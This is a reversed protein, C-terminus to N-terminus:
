AKEDLHERDHLQKSAQEYLGKFSPKIERRIVDSSHNIIANEIEAGSIQLNALQKLEAPSLRLPHEEPMKQKWLKVREEYEPFGVEIVALCRRFVAPDLAHVRNTALICLGKYEEIQVLLENIVELTWQADPGLKDRNILIADCENMYITMLGNKRANTFLDRINRSLEGPQGSGFDAFSVSKMGKRRVRFSIWEAVATKGCGAPGHLLFASGQKRIKHLGWKKWEKVKSFMVVADLVAAELAASM